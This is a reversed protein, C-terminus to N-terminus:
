VDLDQALASLFNRLTGNCLKKSTPEEVEACTKEVSQRHKRIVERVTQEDEKQLIRKRGGGSRTKLGDLDREQFRKVWYMVGSQHPQGALVGAATNSQGDAKSVAMPMEYPFQTHERGPIREHPVGKPYGINRNENRTKVYYNKNALSLM